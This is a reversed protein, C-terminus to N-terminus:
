YIRKKLKKVTGGLYKQDFGLFQNRLKEKAKKQRYEAMKQEVVQALDSRGSAKLPSLLEKYLPATSRGLRVTEAVKQVTLRRIPFATARDLAGAAELALMTRVCKECRGCNLMGDEYRDDRNCVRLNQLAVNWDAIMKVKDFRSLNFGAQSVQLGWSSYCATLLPHDGQPILNPVDHSSNFSLSHWRKSFAHAIAAFSASMYQCLWFEHWFERRNVPGIDTINTYVPIFTLDSAEAITDILRLVKRFKEIDKVEMGFVLLGDRLYGPHDPHFELRNHYLTAMSDVGGSFCFAARKHLENDSINQQKRAEISVIQHGPPYWWHRLLQMATNLGDKLKPCIAEDIFVRQEGFYLGPIVSAILFAHPDPSILSAHRVDTEFYIEQPNRGCDEWIIRASCRQRNEHQTCNLNTIKM